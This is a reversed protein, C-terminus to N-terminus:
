FPEFVPENASHAHQGKRLMHHSEIGTLIAKTSYFAESGKMSKTVKKILRHDQEVINILYKIQRVLIQMPIGRLIFLLTLHLNITDIGSKKAQSTGITLRLLIFPIAFEYV